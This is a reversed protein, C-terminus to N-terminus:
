TDRRLTPSQRRVAERMAEYAQFEHTRLQYRMTEHSVVYRRRLVDTVHKAVAEFNRFGAVGVVEAYAKALDERLARRPMLMEAALRRANSETFRYRERLRRQLAIAGAIDTAKEIQDRHLVFHAIEEAVTFRYRNERYDMMHEDVAVWYRGEPDRYLAGVVDCSQRLGPIPAIDLGLHYAVNEIEVPIPYGSSFAAALLADAHKQLQWVKYEPVPDSTNRSTNPSDDSSPKM